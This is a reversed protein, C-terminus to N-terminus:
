FKWIEQRTMLDTLKCVSKTPKRLFISKDLIGFNEMALALVEFQDEQTLHYQQINSTIM